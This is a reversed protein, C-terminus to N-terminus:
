VAVNVFLPCFLSRVVPQILEPENCGCCGLPGLVAIPLSNGSGSLQSLSQSNLVAAAPLIAGILAVPITLRSLSQSSLPDSFLPGTAIPASSQSLSQSSLPDSLLGSAVVVSSIFTLECLQLKRATGGVTTNATATITLTPTSGILANEAATLMHVIRGEAGQVDLYTLTVAATIGDYLTIVISLTDGDDQPVDGADTKHFAFTLQNNATPDFAYSGIVLTYFVEGSPSLSSGVCATIPNEPTFEETYGKYVVETYHQSLNVVADVSETVEVYSQSTRVLPPPFASAVEVYSQTVVAAPDTTSTVEVFNQTVTANADVTSTVEVFNQTSRGVTM